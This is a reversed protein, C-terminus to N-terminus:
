PAHSPIKSLDLRLDCISQRGYFHRSHSFGEWGAARAMAILEQKSFAALASRRMDEVTMPERYFFSASYIGGAAWRTRELDALLRGAAMRKMNRLVSVADDQTFHHLALSCVALDAPEGPLWERVDAEHFTIEPYATSLSRAISLTSPHFDVADITLRCGRSRALDILYRPLDASGTCLDVLHLATGPLLVPGIFRRLIAHAGFWRNLSRLNALDRELAPSVPQPRDMLEPDDPDFRRRM